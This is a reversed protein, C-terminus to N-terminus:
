NSCHLNWKCPAYFMVLVISNEAVFTGFSSTTLHHVHENGPLDKWFDKPDSSPPPTVPQPNLPDKM